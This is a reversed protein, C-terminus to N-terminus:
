GVKRVDYACLWDTSGDPDTVQYQQHPECRPGDTECPKADEVTMPFGPVLEHEIRDGKAATTPTQMHENRENGTPNLDPGSM